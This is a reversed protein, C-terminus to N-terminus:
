SRPHGIVMQLCLASKVIQSKLLVLQEVVFLVQVVFVLSTWGDPVVFRCAETGASLKALVCRLGEMTSSFGEGEIEVGPAILPIRTDAPKEKISSESYSEIEYESTQFLKSLAIVFLFWYYYLVFCLM